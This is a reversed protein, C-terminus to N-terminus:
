QGMGFAVLVLLHAHVCLSRALKRPCTCAANNGGAWGEPVPGRFSGGDVLLVEPTRHWLSGSPVVHLV